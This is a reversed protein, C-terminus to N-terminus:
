KYERWVHRCEVCRFFQTPPEDISRTQILWYYSKDHHCKPCEKEMVPLDPENDEIVVIETKKTEDTLRSDFPKEVERGCNRCRRVNERAPVLLGGCDCFEVDM